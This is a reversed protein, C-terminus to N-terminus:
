FESSRICPAWTGDRTLSRSGVHQLWLQTSCSMACGLLYESDNEFKSSIQSVRWHMGNPSTQPTNGGGPCNTCVGGEVGRAPSQWHSHMWELQAVGTILVSKEKTKATGNVSSLHLSLFLLSVPQLNERLPQFCDQGVGCGGLLCHPHGSQQLRWLAACTSDPLEDEWTLSVM